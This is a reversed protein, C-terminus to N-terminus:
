SDACVHGHALDIRMRLRFPENTEVLVGEISLVPWQANPRASDFREDETGAVVSLSSPLLRPEFVLIVDKVAVAISRLDTQGAGLCALPPNGFNAVSSFAHSGKEGRWRGGRISANILSLVDNAVSRPLSSENVPGFFKAFSQSM